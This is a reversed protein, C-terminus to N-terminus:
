NLLAFCRIKKSEIICKFQFLRSVEDLIYSNVKFPIPEFYKGVFTPSDDQTISKYVTTRFIEPTPTIRELDKRSHSLMPATGYNDVFIYHWEKATFDYDSPNIHNLNIAAEYPSTYVCLWFMSYWFVIVLFLGVIGYCSCDEDNRAM